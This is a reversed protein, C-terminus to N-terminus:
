VAKRKREARIGQMYGFQFCVYMMEFLSPANEKISCMQSCSIDFIDPVHIEKKRMREYFNM